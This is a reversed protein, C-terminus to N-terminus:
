LVVFRDVGGDFVEVVVVMVSVDGGGFVQM